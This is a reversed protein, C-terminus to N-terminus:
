VTFDCVEYQTLERAARNWATVREDEPGHGMFRNISEELDAVLWNTAVPLAHAKGDPRLVPELHTVTM